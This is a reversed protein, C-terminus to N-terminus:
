SYTFESDKVIMEADRQQSEMLNVLVYNDKLFSRLFRKIQKGRCCCCWSIEQPEQVDAPSVQEGLFTLLGLILPIRLGFYFPMIMLFLFASLNTLDAKNRKECKLYFFHLLGLFILLVTTILSLGILELGLFFFLNRYVEKGADTDQNKM